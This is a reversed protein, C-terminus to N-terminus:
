FKGQGSLTLSIIEQRCCSCHWRDSKVSSSGPGSYVNLVLWPTISLSVCVITLFSKEVAVTLGRARVRTNCPFFGMLYLPTKNFSGFPRCIELDTNNACDSEDCLDLSLSPAAFLLLLSSLLLSSVLTAATARARMNAMSAAEQLEQGVGCKTQQHHVRFGVPQQSTVIQAHPMHAHACPGPVVCVWVTNFNIHTVVFYFKVNCHWVISLACKFFVHERGTQGYSM